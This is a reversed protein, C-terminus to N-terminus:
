RCLEHLISAVDSEGNRELEQAAVSISGFCLEAVARPLVSLKSM